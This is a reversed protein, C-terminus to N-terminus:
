EYANRSMEHMREIPIRMLPVTVTVTRQLVVHQQHKVRIPLNRMNPLPCRWVSAHAAWFLLVTLRGLSGQQKSSGQQSSKGSLAPVSMSSQAGYLALLGPNAHAHPNPGFQHPFPAGFPMFPHPGLSPMGNSLSEQCGSSFAPHSGPLTAPHRAPEKASPESRAPKAEPAMEAHQRKRQVNGTGDQSSSVPVASCTRESSEDPSAIGFAFALAPPVLSQHLPLLDASSPLQYSLMASSPQAGRNSTKGTM